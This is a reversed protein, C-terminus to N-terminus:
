KKGQPVTTSSSNNTANSPVQPINITNTDTSTPTTDPQTSTATPTTNLNTGPITSTASPTPSVTSQISQLLNVGSVLMVSKKVDELLLDEFSFFIIENPKLPELSQITEVIRAPFNRMNMAGIGMRVRSLDGLRNLTSTAISLVDKPNSSYSMLCVYDIYGNKVWAVWDQFRYKVADSSYNAFVAASLNKGRKKVTQYVQQVALNVQLIRFKDFADLTEVFSKGRSYEELFKKYYELAIPNYGFHSYPYRIFDLHIEDVAYKRAIEDAVSAIYNRVEPIGPDLFMGEVYGSARSYNLLSIGNADYTIWEPHQNVVHQPSKPRSNFPWVYFTNMWASIKINLPQALSIIYGLPDFDAPQSALAEARPLIDSEYYADMRGVVQVYLRQAGVETAVKIVNQVKEPTTIQDRVVWIAIPQSFSLLSFLLVYVLVFLGRKIKM